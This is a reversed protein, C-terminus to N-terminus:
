APSENDPTTRARRPGPRPRASRSPAPPMFGHAPAACLGGHRPDFVVPADRAWGQASSLRIFVEKQRRQHSESRRALGAPGTVCALGGRGSSLSCVSSSRTVGVSVGCITRSILVLASDALGDCTTATPEVVYKVASSPTWPTSNHFLSPVAAPVVRTLSM